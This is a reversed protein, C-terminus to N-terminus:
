DADGGEFFLERLAVLDPLNMELVRVTTRGIPTRGVIIYGQTHHFLLDLPACALPISGHRLLSPLFYIQESVKLTASRDWRPRRSCLRCERHCWTWGLRRCRWGFLCLRTVAQQAQVEKSSLLTSM